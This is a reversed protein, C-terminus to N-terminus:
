TVIDKLIPIKRLESDHRRQDRIYAAAGAADIGGEQSVLHPERSGHTKMQVADPQGRFILRM